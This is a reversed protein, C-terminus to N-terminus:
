ETIDSIGGVVRAPKGAADRIIYGRDLVVAYNGDKRRFRYHGAWTRGGGDAVRHIEALVRDKDDPHLRELWWDLNNSVDGPKYGFLAQIGDSWWVTKTELNVDCIADTTALAVSEFRQQSLRLAEEALRRAHFARRLVLYLVLGTTLVFNIGKLTELAPSHVPLDMLRDLVEDAFVFWLSAVIVYLCTLGMEALPVEKIFVREAHIMEPGRALLNKLNFAM